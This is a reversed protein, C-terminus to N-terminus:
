ARPEQNVIILEVLLPADPDPPPQIELPVPEKTLWWTFGVSHRVTLLWDTDTSITLPQPTPVTSIHASPVLDGAYAMFAVLATEVKALPLQSYALTNPFRYTM